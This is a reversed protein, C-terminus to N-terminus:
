QEEVLQLKANTGMDVKGGVGYKLSYAYGTQAAPVNVVHKVEVPNSSTPVCGCSWTSPDLWSGTQVSQIPGNEAVFIAKIEQHTLGRNYFRLDDLEGNFFYSWCNMGGIILPSQNSASFNITTAGGAVLNGNIYLATNGQEHSQAVHVWSNLNLRAFASLYGPWTGGSFNMRPQGDPAPLVMFYLWSRDCDKSFITQVGAAASMIGTNGDRGTFSRLNIWGSFTYANSLTLSPSNSVVIRSGDTFRYAGNPTGRRDAVLTAGQVSGNNNNGSGDNANGNFPFYAILGNTPAPPTVPPAEAQYLNQVEASSLGRNYIRVDDIKGNFFWTDPDPNVNDDDAGILLGRPNTYSISNSVSQSVVQVGNVFLKASTGSKTLVVHHWSNLILPSTYTIYSGQYVYGGVSQFSNTGYQWANESLDNAVYSLIMGPSNTTSIWTSLTFDNFEFAANRGVAIWDNGDFSYAKNAVGFRDTTLTAGNVTGNRGNGSEDNANGNFPYHAVLGNTVSPPSPQIINYVLVTPQGLCESASDFQSNNNEDIYPTMTESIVGSTSSNLLTYPGYTKNFYNVGVDRLSRDIEVVYGLGADINGTSTLKNLFRLNSTPVNTVLQSLQMFGGSFLTMTASGPQTQNTVMAANSGTATYSFTITPCSPSTQALILQPLFFFISSILWSKAKRTPYCLTM